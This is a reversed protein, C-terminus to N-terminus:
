GVIAELYPRIVRTVRCVAAYRMIADIKMHGKRRYIKLAEIAVDLGVKGRCKFCDALTKEPSYVRLAIGDVKHVDIGESFAPGKFRFVRIPPYHLRPIGSRREVAVYIERPIQTTIDHFSLASILCIVGDPVRSAVAALDPSGLAPLGALRYVGRALSELDGSDRMAYLVRPHIGARLADRTRFVGGLKELRDKWHEVQKENVTTTKKTMSLYQVVFISITIYKDLRKKLPYGGFIRVM